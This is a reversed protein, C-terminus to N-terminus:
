GLRGRARSGLTMESVDTRAQVPWAAAHEVDYDATENPKERAQTDVGQLSMAGRRTKKVSRGRVLGTPTEYRSADFQPEPM